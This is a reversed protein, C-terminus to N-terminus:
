SHPPSPQSDIDDHTVPKGPKMQRKVQLYLRVAVSVVVAVSAGLILFWWLM